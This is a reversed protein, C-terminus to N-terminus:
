HIHAASKRLTCIADLRKVITDHVHTERVDRDQPRMVSFNVQGTLSYIAGEMVLQSHSQYARNDAPRTNAVEYDDLQTAVFIHDYFRVVDKLCRDKYSEIEQIDKASIRMHSQMDLECLMYGIFDIPTRDTICPGPTATILEIHDQLLHWQMKLRDQISLFGVPNFGHRNASETISTPIYTIGLSEAVAKALTTKGTGSSGAIGYLM